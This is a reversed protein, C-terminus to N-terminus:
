PTLKSLQPLAQSLPRFDPPFSQFRFFHVKLTKLLFFQGGSSELTNM